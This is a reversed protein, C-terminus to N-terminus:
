DGDSFLTISDGSGSSLSKQFDLADEYTGFDLECGWGDEAFWRGDREYPPNLPIGDSNKLEEAM